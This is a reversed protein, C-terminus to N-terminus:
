IFLPLRPLSLNDKTASIVKGWTCQFFTFCDFHSVTRTFSPSLSLLHHGPHPSPGSLSPERCPALERLLSAKLTALNAPCEM